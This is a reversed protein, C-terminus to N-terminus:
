VRLKSSNSVVGIMVPVWGQIGGGLSAPNYGYGQELFTTARTYFASPTGPSEGDMVISGGLYTVSDQWTSAYPNENILAGVTKITATLNGNSLYPQLTSASGFPQTEGTINTGAAASVDWTTAGTADWAVFGAPIVHTGDIGYFPTFGANLTASDEYHGLAGYWIILDGTIPSIDFGGTGLTPGYPSAGSNWGQTMPQGVTQTWNRLWFKNNITDVAVGLIDGPSWRPEDLDFYTGCIAGQTGITAGNNGIVVASDVTNGMEITRGGAPAGVTQAGNNFGQLCLLSSTITDRQHPNIFGIQSSVQPTGSGLTVEFYFQGGPGPPLPGGVSETDIISSGGETASVNFVAGPRLTDTGIQHPPWNPAFSGGTPGPGYAQNSLGDDFVARISPDNVEALPFLIEVQGKAM